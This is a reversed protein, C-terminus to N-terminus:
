LIEIAAQERSIAILRWNENIEQQVELFAKHESLTWNIYGHFEDFILINGPKFLYSKLIQLVYKTSEYTDLDFHFVTAEKLQSNKENIFRPLTDQVKGELIKVNKHFYLSEKDVKFYGSTMDTGFWDENLGEFSDFGFCEFEPLREAFYNISEGRYVGFELYVGNSSIQHQKSIVYSWLQQRTPFVMASKILPVLWDAAQQQNLDRIRTLVNPEEKSKEIFGVITNLKLKIDNIGSVINDLQENIPDKSDM